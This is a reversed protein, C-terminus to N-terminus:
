LITLMPSPLGFLLSFFHDLDTINKANCEVPTEMKVSWQKSLITGITLLHKPVRQYVSKQNITEKETVKWDWERDWVYDEIRFEQQLETQCSDFVKCTVAELTVQWKSAAEKARNRYGTRKGRSESKISILNFVEDMSPGEPESQSNFVQYNSTNPLHFAHAGDAM